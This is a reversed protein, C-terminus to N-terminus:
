LMSSFCLQTACFSLICFSNTNWNAAVDAERLLQVMELAQNAKLADMVLRSVPHSGIMVFMTNIVM